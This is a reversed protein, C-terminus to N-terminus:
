FNVNVFGLINIGKGAKRYSPGFSSFGLNIANKKQFMLLILQDM